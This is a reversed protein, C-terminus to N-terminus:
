TWDKRTMCRESGLRAGERDKFKAGRRKCDKMDGGAAFFQKKEEENVKDSPCSILEDM